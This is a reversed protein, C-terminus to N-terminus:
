SEEKCVEYITELSYVRQFKGNNDAITLNKRGEGFATGWSFLRARGFINVQCHEGADQILDAHCGLAKLSQRIKKRTEAHKDANAKVTAKHSAELVIEFQNM